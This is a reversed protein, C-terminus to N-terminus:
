KPFLFKVTFQLQWDPGFEPREANWYGALKMDVPRGGFKFLKGLGGGFPVMWRNESDAEWNATITPTSTLYWGGELNYNIFYQFLFKNVDGDGWGAVSWVNQTLLGIVWRGPMTLVVAAPGVSLQESSYRDVTATPVVFAGGLGWIFKGPKAPSFFAQYTLDGLGFESGGIIDNIQSYDTLIPDGPILDVDQGESYMVPIVFRNILNWDGLTVPYMPKMNLIYATSDSPGIGFLFNNEFPASIVTGLPNQSQKALDDEAFCVGGHLLLTLPLLLASLSGLIILAFKQM